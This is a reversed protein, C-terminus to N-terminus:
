VWKYCSNRIPRNMLYERSEFDVPVGLTDGVCLGCLIDKLYNRTKM